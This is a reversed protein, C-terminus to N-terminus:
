VNDYAHKASFNGSIALDHAVVLVQFVRDCEDFLLGVVALSLRTYYSLAPITITLLDLRFYIIQLRAARLELLGNCRRVRHELELNGKLIDRTKPNVGPLEPRRFTLPM